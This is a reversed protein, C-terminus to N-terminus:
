FFIGYFPTFKLVYFYDEYILLLNCFLICRDRVEGCRFTVKRDLARFDFSLVDGKCCLLVYLQECSFVAVARRCLVFCAGGADTDGEARLSERSETQVCAFCLSVALFIGQSIGWGLDSCFIGQLNFAALIRVDEAACHLAVLDRCLDAAIEMDLGQLFFFGVLLLVCRCAEIERPINARSFEGLGREAKGRASSRDVGVVATRSALGADECSFVAEVDVDFLVGVELARDDGAFCSRLLIAEARPREREAIQLVTRVVACLAYAGLIVVVAAIVLHASM